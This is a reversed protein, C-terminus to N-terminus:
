HWNERERKLMSLSIYLSLSLSLSLSLFSFVIVPMWQSFCHENIISSNYIIFLSSLFPLSPSILLFLLISKSVKRTLLHHPKNQLKRLPSQWSHKMLKIWRQVRSISVAVAIIDERKRQTCKDWMFRVLTVSREHEIRKQMKSFKTNTPWPGMLRSTLKTFNAFRCLMQRIWYLFTLPWRIM